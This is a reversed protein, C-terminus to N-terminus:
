ALQGQQLLYMKYYLGERALLQQHTGQEVIKGHHLVLILDADQVTSLRHAIAITTRGHRMQSLAEQIADETETDVSATAEDLALIVPDIAMTRAFSLLQRQGTSLTAGREGIPAHYGGALRRIFPDAQVFRAADVVEDDSVFENGLRINSTIDGYFLFPEQLVLGMKRRLEYSPIMRLDTGDIWIHGREVPYFRMLLNIISSKGSGTHGVIAVTQGPHATFSIHQLIDHSGDYSFSVDDFVVEGRSIQPHTDGITKPAMEKHDLIQFVREASVMAQQFFNLRQMMNNVPEFFRSLYTVFAYLVGINVAHSFSSLGFYWLVFMLTLSYIVDNLPRLLLGNLQMNRYRARRYANNIQGFEQRMRAEQRMSQIIAMGQLSENLKANLLALQQRAFHFVPASVKRYLTMVGFIVPILFLCYLALHANLAFMAILIGALITINQVFTSLVTMFMELISQTDNTIRSVVVGVPTKDFFSLAIEQAKDFLDIRLQQIIDLALVEFLLLQVVNLVATLIVLGLYLAGLETMIVRPFHRPILYQDIFIKILLPQVVDTATAVLLIFFALILKSRYPRLYQLLRRFTGASNPVGTISDQELIM